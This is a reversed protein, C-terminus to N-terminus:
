VLDLRLRDPEARRLRTPRHPRGACRVDGLVLTSRVEPGRAALLTVIEDLGVEQGALVGDLVEAVHRPVVRFRWSQAHPDGPRIGIRDPPYTVREILAMDGVTVHAILIDARTVQVIM